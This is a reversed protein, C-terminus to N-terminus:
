SASKLPNPRTSRSGSSAQREPMRVIGARAQMSAISDFDMVLASAAGSASRKAPRKFHSTCPPSTCRYRNWADSRSSSHFRRCGGAPCRLADHRTPCVVETRLVALGGGLLFRPPDRLDIGVRGLRRNGLSRDHARPEIRCQRWKARSWCAVPESVTIAKALALNRVVHRIGPPPLGSLAPTDGSPLHQPEGEAVRADDVCDGGVPRTAAIGSPDQGCPNRTHASASDTTGRDCGSSQIAAGPESPKRGGAHQRGALM